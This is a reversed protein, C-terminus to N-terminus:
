SSPRSWYEDDPGPETSQRGFQPSGSQPSGYPQAGAPPPGYPQGASQQPGYPQPGYPQPGPSQPGPSPAGYPQSTGGYPAGYSGPQAYRGPAGYPGPQPYPTASPGGPGPGQDYLGPMGPLAGYSGYPGPTTQAPARGRGFFAAPSALLLGAVVAYGAMQAVALTLNLGLWGGPYADTLAATLGADDAAGRRETFVTVASGCGALLGLACVVWTAVRSANSGRRLGMALVVYLAFLIVALAVAIGAVVWVVTVLGDVEAAAFGTAAARFRSVVGPAVALTALAYALGAVAMVALLTAALAVTVPRRPAAGAAPAAANSMSM